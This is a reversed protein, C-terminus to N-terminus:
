RRQAPSLLILRDGKGGEPLLLVPPAKGGAEAAPLSPIVLLQGGADSLLRWTARGEQGNLESGLLAEYRERSGLLRVGRPNALLQDLDRGIVAERGNVADRRADSLGQMGALGQLLLLLWLVIVLEDLLSALGLWQKQQHGSWGLTGALWRLRPLLRRRCVQIARFSLAIGMGILVLGFLLRVIAWPSGLLVAYAAIITSEVSLGLSTPEVQFFTYYHWRYM